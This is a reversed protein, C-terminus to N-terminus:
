LQSHNTNNKAAKLYIENLHEINYAKHTLKEHM